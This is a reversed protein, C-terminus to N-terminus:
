WLGEPRQTPEEGAAFPDITLAPTAGRAEPPPSAATRRRASPRAVRLRAPPRAPALQPPASEGLDDAILARPGAGPGAVRRPSSLMTTVTPSPARALMQWGLALSVVALALGALAV